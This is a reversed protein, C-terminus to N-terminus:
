IAANSSFFTGLRSKPPNNKRYLEERLELIRDSFVLSKSKTDYEVLCRIADEYEHASRFLESADLVCTKADSKEGATWFMNAAMEFMIPAADRRDESCVYASALGHMARAEVLGFGHERAERAVREFIGIAHELRDESTGHGSNQDEDEEELLSLGRMVLQRLQAEKERQDGVDDGGSSALLRVLDAKETCRSMDLGLRHCEARLDGVSRTLLLKEKEQNHVNEAVASKDVTPSTLQNLLDIMEERAMNSSTRFGNAECLASLHPTDLKAYDELSPQEGLASRASPARTLLKALRKAERSGKNLGNVWTVTESMSLARFVFTRDVTVVQFEYRGAEPSGIRNESKTQQKNLVLSIGDAAVHVPLKSLIEIRQITDLFLRGKMPSNHSKHWSLALKWTNTQNDLAKHVLFWRRQWMHSMSPSKKEMYGHLDIDRINETFDIKEHRIQQRALVAEDSIDKSVNDMLKEARSKGSSDKFSSSSASRRLESVKNAKAIGTTGTAARAPMAAFSASADNGMGMTAPASNPTPPTSPEKRLTLQPWVRSYVASGDRNKQNAEDIRSVFEAERMSTTIGHIIEGAQAATVDERLGLCALSTAIVPRQMDKAWAVSMKNVASAFFEPSVALLDSVNEWLLMEMALTKEPDRTFLGLTRLVGEKDARIHFVDDLSLKQKALIGDFRPATAYSVKEPLVLDVWHNPNRSIPSHRFLSVCYSVVIDRTLYRLLQNFYPTLIFSKIDGLYDQVTAAIRVMVNGHLDQPSVDLHAPTFLQSYFAEVDAHIMDLIVDVFSLVAQSYKSRVPNWDIDVDAGSIGFRGRDLDDIHDQITACDNTIACMFRLDTMLAQGRETEHLERRFTTIYDAITVLCCQMVAVQVQPVGSAKAMILTENIMNFIDVPANTALESQGRRIVEVCDEGRALNTRIINEIWTGLSEQLDVLYRAAMMDINDEMTFPPLKKKLKRGLKDKFLRTQFESYASILDMIRLMDHITLSEYRDGVLYVGVEHEFRMQYARMYAQLIDIRKLHGLCVLSLEDLEEIMRTAATLTSELSANREFKNDLNAEVKQVRGVEDLSDWEVIWDPVKEEKSEEDDDLPDGGPSFGAARDAMATTQKLTEQRHKEVDKLHKELDSVWDLMMQESEAKFVYVRLPTVVHFVESEDGPAAIIQTNKGLIIQGQFDGWGLRENKYYYLSGEIVRCYRSQWAKFRSPSKKLLLGDKICLEQAREEWEIDRSRVASQKKRMSNRSKYKSLDGGTGDSGAFSDTESTQSHGSNRRTLGRSSGNNNSSDESANDVDATRCSTIGLASTLVSKVNPHRPLGSRSNVSKIPIPNFAIENPQPFKSLSKVSKIPIPNFAIESPERFSGAPSTSTSSLPTSPSTPQKDNTTNLKPPRPPPPKAIPEHVDPTDFKLSKNSGASKVSKISKNSHNSSSPIKGLPTPPEAVHPKIIKPSPPEQPVKSNSSTATGEHEAEMAATSNTTFIVDAGAGDEFFIQREKLCRVWNNAENVSKAKLYVDGSKLPLIFEGFRGELYPEDTLDTLDCSARLKNMKRDTFYNLYQNNVAFYRKQYSGHSSKKQLYGQLMELDTYDPGLVMRSDVEAGKQM